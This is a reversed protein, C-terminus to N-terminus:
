LRSSCLTDTGAPCMSPWAIGGGGGGGGFQQPPGAGGRGGRGWSYLWLRLEISEIVM